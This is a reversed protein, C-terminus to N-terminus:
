RKGKVKVTASPQKCQVSMKWMSLARVMRMWKKGGAWCWMCRHQLEGVEHMGVTGENEAECVKLMNICVPEFMACGHTVLCVVDCVDEAEPQVVVRQGHSHHTCTSTHVCLRMTCVTGVCQTPWTVTPRTPLVLM